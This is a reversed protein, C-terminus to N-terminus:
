CDTRSSALFDEEMRTKSFMISAIEKSGVSIEKDGEEINPLILEKKPITKQTYNGQLLTWDFCYDYKQQSRGLLIRSFLLFSSIKFLHINSIV